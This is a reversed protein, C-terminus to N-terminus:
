HVWRLASGDSSIVKTGSRDTRLYNIKFQQLLTLVERSPHGFPNNLGCSIAFLKPDLKDLLAYTTSTISGHHGSRVFTSGTLALQDFEDSELDALFLCSVTKYRFTWVSSYNNINVYDILSPHLCSLILDSIQLQTGKVPYSVPIQKLSALQLIEELLLNGKTDHSVFLHDIQFETLILKGGGVHDDHPHTLILGDLKKIDLAKLYKALTPGAEPPGTDILLNSTKYQILTADGQGVDIVHIKLDDHNLLIPLNAYVARNGSLLLRVKPMLGSSITAGTLSLILCFFILLKSKKPFSAFKLRLKAVQIKIHFM